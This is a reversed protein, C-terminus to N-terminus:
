ACAPADQHAGPRQRILPLAGSGIMGVPNLVMIPAPVLASDASDSSSGHPRLQLTAVAGSAYLVALHGGMSWALGCVSESPLRPQPPALPEDVEIEASRQGHRPRAAPQPAEVREMADKARLAFIERCKRKFKLMHPASPRSAMISCLARSHAALMAACAINGVVNNVGCRMSGDRVDLVSVAGCANAIAICFGSPHAAMDTAPGDSLTVPASAFIPIVQICPALSHAKSRVLCPLVTKACSRPCM